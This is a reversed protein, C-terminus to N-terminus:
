IASNKKSTVKVSKSMNELTKLKLRTIPEFFNKGTQLRSTVFKDKAEQGASEGRLLDYTVEKTASAGSSLIVVDSGEIDFPNMFSEIADKAKQVHTESKCIDATRADKHKDTYEPLLGVM